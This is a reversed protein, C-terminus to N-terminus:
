RRPQNAAPLAARTAPQALGPMWRWRSERAPAPRSLAVSSKRAIIVYVAGLGPWWRAGADELHASKRRREASHSPPRYLLNSAGALEFGLASLEDQVQGARILDGGWVRRGAMRMVPRLASWVSLPNFGTVAICGQPALAQSAERLAARPDACFELAHPLVILNHAKAAFPLAEPRAIIRHPPPPEDGATNDGDGTTTAAGARDVVLFRQGAEVGRLFDAAPQGIQLASPYYIAPLLEAARRQEERLVFRGLSTDFWDHMLIAPRLNVRQMTAANM